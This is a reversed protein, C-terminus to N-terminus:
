FQRLCRKLGESWHNIEINFTEKIKTKDLVSYFPRTAKTPYKFSPIPNVKCNLNSLEMITIAFDYWSCVGENTYHYIGKNTENIQPLIKVIADALDGAYTPSGIQDSVVNIEEKEQGLRIMTKLFNNGYSSYLWATRLIIANNSNKLIEEEGKRKTKGYVSIPNTNDEEKYPKNSNGDFVYDTSIHILKLGMKALNYPGIVNTKYATDFTEEAKDVATYAACNIITKIDNNKIFSNVADLDIIDLDSSGTSIADPLLNKLERGLQGTGGTILIKDKM